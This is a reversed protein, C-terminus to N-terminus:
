NQTYISLAALTESLPKDMMDSGIKVGNIYTNGGMNNTTVSKAGATFGSVIGGDGLLLGLSNVFERFEAGRNPQIIARTIEPPLVTEPENTGKLMLGALGAFGGSDYTNVKDYTGKYNLTTQDANVLKSQYTGDENVATIQYTGGETVVQDGVTLGKPAKGNSQVKVIRNGATRGTGVTGVDVGMGGLLATVAEVVSAFEPIGSTALDNLVAAIDKTPEELSKQIDKWEQEFAEYQAKIAKKQAEIQDKLADYEKSIADKQKDLKDLAAEYALEDIYDEVDKKAENYADQASKVKSEDAVWKWVGDELRRVTREGMAAELERQRELMALQKEELKNQQEKVERAEKLATIQAEIAEKQREYRKQAREQSAELDDLKRQMEDKKDALVASMATNLSSILDKRLQQQRKEAEDYVDQIADEYEWWQKQLAQIYESNEAEGNARYRDALAHVKEQMARYQNVIADDMGGQKGWLFIQHEMYKLTTDLEDKWEKFPDSEQASSGGGGGGGGGTSGGGGGGVSGGSFMADIGSTDVEFTPIKITKGGTGIPVEKTGVKVSGLKYLYALLTQAAASGNNAAAIISNIAGVISSTDVSFGNLQGITGLYAIFAGQGEYVKAKLADMSLATGNAQASAAILHSALEEVSIGCESALKKLEPYQAILQAVTEANLEGAAAMETVADRLTTPLQEYAEVFQASADLTLMIEDRYEEWHAIMDEDTSAEMYEDLLDINDLLQDRLGSLVEELYENEEGSEAIAKALNRYQRILDDIEKEKDTGRGRFGASAGEKSWAKNLEANAQEEQKDAREKLLEVQRELASNEKLLNDIEDQEALTLGGNIEKLSNLERIREANADIQSNTSSIEDTTQQWEARMDAAAQKAENATVILKEIGVGIGVAALVALQPGISKLIASFSAKLTSASLGFTKISAILGGLMKGGSTRAIAAALATFAKSLGFVAATAGIIVGVGSDLIEVFGKIAGIGTKVFDSSIIHSVFKTWAASLQNLKSEWSNLYLENEKMASGTAGAYEDLMKEYLDWNQMLAMLINAQRKGALAEGIASQAVTDLTGWKEALEDLIDSSLRLQGNAMTSIGAYDKLAASAKAISEGDILEGDETEGKIQRINMVITRLGRAIESGSRQTAATGAGVLATFTQMSEGAASFVSAAVTIGETMKDFDTANKNTIENVGDIVKMLEDYSGHLQWAADTAILFESAADAEIDGINQTLVSLESLQEIQDQYGARAFTVSADLVEDATRGMAAALEYASATLADIESRSMDTVKQITVLQSDVEKLTDLADKFAKIPGYVATTAASWLAVKGVLKGMTDGHKEAVTDMEKYASKLKNVETTAQSIGGVKVPISIPKGDLTGTVTKLKRFEALALKDDVTVTLNVTRTM